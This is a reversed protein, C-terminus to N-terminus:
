RNYHRSIKCFYKAWPHLRIFSHWQESESLFKVAQIEDIVSALTSVSLWNPTNESFKNLVFFEDQNIRYIFNADDALLISNPLYCAGPLDNIYISFLLLGPIWGQPVGILLYFVDSLVSNVWVCQRQEKSFSEFKKFCIGRVGHKELTALLIDFAISDFAKQLDLLLCMFTDLRRQM